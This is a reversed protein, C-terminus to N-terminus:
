TGESGRAAAKLARQYNYGNGKELGAEDVAARLSDAAANTVAWLSTLHANQEDSWELAPLGVERQYAAIAAFAENAARQLDALHPPIEIDAM